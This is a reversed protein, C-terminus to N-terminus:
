IKNQLWEYYKKLGENFSTKPKYGLLEKARTIDLTGRRPYLKHAGTDVINSTSGTLAIIKEAATRLSTANGATINFSRNSVDSLTVKIIGDATDDLYTFDVRNEGDHVEITKNKMAREFFKSLVRDDMDGPGYVGSPRVVAYNVKYQNHYHKVFREATLKAEGYLNNPKSDADEKTGDSFHGYIMSSSVFVFKKVPMKECHWLLNVTGGIINHVGIMPDANVIKARPYSALHIVYDPRSRFATLLDLNRTVDGGVRHIDSWNRQRYDYLKKLDEPSIVGYTESNDLTSVSHGMACLKEVIKSGIFGYAGTVLIRM